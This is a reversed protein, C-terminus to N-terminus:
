AAFIDDSQNVKYKFAKLLSMIKEPPITEGALTKQSLQKWPLISDLRALDVEDPSSHAMSWHPFMREDSHQKVLITLNRHRLDSAISGYIKKVEDEPGELLQLFVEGRHLLLGTVDREANRDRSLALIDAIDEEGRFIETAFSIYVVQYIKEM